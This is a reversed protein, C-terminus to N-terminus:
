GAAVPLRKEFMTKGDVSSISRMAVMRGDGPPDLDVIAFGTRDEVDHLTHEPDQNGQSWGPGPWDTGSATLEYLEGHEFHHILRHGHADGSLILVTADLQAFFSLLEERETTYSNHWGPDDDVKNRFAMPSAIVRLPAASALMGAKLWRKQENGLRSKLANDPGSPDSAFLRCDLCWVHVDGWRLDFFENTPNAHLEDFAWVARRDVTDAWGNDAQYDHDDQWFMLPTRQILAEVSATRLLRAWRHQWHDPSRSLSQLNVYGWDGAHLYFDPDFSAVTPFSPFEISRGSTCSAFAFRVRQERSPTRFSATRGVVRDGDGECFPRWFYERGEGLEEVWAHVSGWHGEPDSPGLVAPESFTPDVAVEFGVPRPYITRATLRAKFGHRGPVVGGAFRYAIPNTTRTPEEISSAAFSHFRAEGKDRSSTPNVMVGVAGPQLPPQPDVASLEEIVGRGEVHGSLRGGEVRQTLRWTPGPPLAGREMVRRDATDYRVLLIQPEAVLLAYAHDYGWRAILGAEAKGEISLTVSIECDSVELDGLVVPQGIYEAHSAKSVAHYNPTDVVIVGEGNRLEWEGGYRVNIWPEPWRRGVGSFDSTFFPKSPVGDGEITGPPDCSSAVIAASAALASRGAQKLFARRDM